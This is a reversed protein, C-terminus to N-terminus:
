SDNKKYVLVYMPNVSKMLTTKQLHVLKIYIDRGFKHIDYLDKYVKQFIM